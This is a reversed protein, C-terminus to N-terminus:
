SRNEGFRCGSTTRYFLCEPPHWKECFPTTCTGKLYDKCSWRSMRGSLSKGRPSQTRSANRESQQMFSSPFPNPQTMKAWKNIAHRFSCNDGESCQGNAELQWCDGQTRQGRQKTGQNKVVANREYNGSRAGFNNNRIDQEISRKVMTKLIHYDPGAKKQHIELDYLELVTKLKESVRIRLTYLGELIEDSPIQTMSLLIEDWKSDFEQIDDNRLGTTFLDAYNEVSDNAGTVRFYEYILYAIPIGRLFRDQKQPKQEELSIRRKFQSNHIIKNLASAIRADLVEFNPMSIGRTSSSSRLEDVSDVLEVEKICQMGETPFPSCTCVETKCRIKWCAFTAPTSFKDFHPDSIQLRQQDAGYNKSYDGESPIVSSRASPGSQCRQDQVPTQNGNKAAQSSHIPEARGSSVPNLEQPYPASSSAVPDAFVNGSIRTHGLISPRGNNRSPMGFSRSLMGGPIPHAPFSVPQSTVHSHGSRVSEADQFDRSDNMCNIENQLEQIMGTLELVTDRDEVLKRRAITDCTSGQFRRLEERQKVILSSRSGKDKWFFGSKSVKHATDRLKKSVRFKQTLHLLLPDGTRDHSVSSSLCSSLGEEQSHDARRRCADSLAKGITIDDYDFDNPSGQEVSSEQVYHETAETIHYDASFFTSHQSEIGHIVTKSLVQALASTDANAPTRVVQALTCSSHQYFSVSLGNVSGRLVSEQEVKPATM